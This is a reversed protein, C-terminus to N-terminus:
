RLSHINVTKVIHMLFTDFVGGPSYTDVTLTVMVYRTHVTSVRYLVQEKRYFLGERYFREKRYLTRKPLVRVNQESFACLVGYTRFGLGLLVVHTFSFREKM